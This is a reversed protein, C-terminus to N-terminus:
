AFLKALPYTFGSVVDLGDLRDNLTLTAVPATPVVPRWVDVEQRSPWIVWVLRVGRALYLHAKTNMEPRYQNPSAVEAVLDPALKAYGKAAPTGIAPLRGALVFSVDPVLATDKPDGPQTLDYTGDAGLVEGLGLPLVYSGLAIGLRMAIVSAEVGSGPLRLLEGEVIEYTYQDDPLHELDAVWM